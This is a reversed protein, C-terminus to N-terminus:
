QVEGYDNGCMTCYFTCIELTEAEYKVLYSNGDNEAKNLTGCCPCEARYPSEYEYSPSDYQRQTM